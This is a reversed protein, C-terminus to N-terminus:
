IDFLMEVISRIDTISNVEELDVAGANAGVVILPVEIDTDILTGHSGLTYDMFLLAEIFMYGRESIAILSPTRPHEIHLEERRAKDDIDIVEAVGETQRLEDAIKDRDDDDAWVYLAGGDLTMPVDKDTIDGIIDRATIGTDVRTMGHDATIILSWRGPRTAELTRALEELGESVACLADATEVAPVPGFRHGCTDPSGLNIGVLAPADNHELYARVTRLIWQDLEIHWGSFNEYQTAEDPAQGVSEIVWDPVSGPWIAFDTAGSLRRCVNTKASIMATGFGASRAIHFLTPEETTDPSNFRHLEGDDGLYEKGTIGNKNPYTGTFIAAHGAATSSPFVAEISKYQYREDACLRRLYSTEPLYSLSLDPCGDLVCVVVTMPEQREPGAAGLVPAAQPWAIIIALLLLLLFRHHQKRM